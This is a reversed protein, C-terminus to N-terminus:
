TDIPKYTHCHLAQAPGPPPPHSVAWSTQSQPDAKVACKFLERALQLTGHRQELVAWAQFVQAVDKSVPDAWVGQVDYVASSWAAIHSICVIMQTNNSIWHQREIPCVCYMHHLCQRLSFHANVGHHLPLSKVVFHIVAHTTHKWCMYLCILRASCSASIYCCTM